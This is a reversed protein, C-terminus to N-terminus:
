VHLRRLSPILAFLVRERGLRVRVRGAVGDGYDEGGAPLPAEFTVAAEPSTWLAAGDAGLLRRAESPPIIKTSVSRIALPQSSLEFRLPMAPRLESRYRAPVVAVLRRQRIVGGGEAERDIHMLFALLLAAAFLALIVGYARRMWAPEIELLHGEDSSGRHYSDLAEGRFLQAADSRIGSHREAASDDSHVDPLHMDPM